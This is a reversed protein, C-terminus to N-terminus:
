ARPWPGAGKAHERDHGKATQHLMHPWGCSAGALQCVHVAGGPAGPVGRGRLIRAQAHFVGAARGQGVHIRSAAAGASLKLGAHGVLVVAARPAGYEAADVGVVRCATSRCSGHWLDEALWVRASVGAAEGGPPGNAFTIVM